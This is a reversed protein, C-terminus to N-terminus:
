TCQRSEAFAEYGKPVCNLIELKIFCFDENFTHRAVTVPYQDVPIFCPELSLNQAHQLDFQEPNTIHRKRRMDDMFGRMASMRASPNMLSLNRALMHQRHIEEHDIGRKETILDKYFSIRSSFFQLGKKGNTIYFRMNLGGWSLCQKSLIDCSASSSSYSTDKIKGILNGLEMEKFFIVDERTQIVFDFVNGTSRTYDEVKKGCLDIKYYMELVSEQMYSYQSIIDLHKETGFFSKWEEQGGNKQPTFVFSKISVNRFDRYLSTINAELQELSMFSYPSPDYKLHPHTAYSLAKSPQLNYFLSFQYDKNATFLPIILRPLFRTTQGTICIAIEVSFDKRMLVFFIVIALQITCRVRIKQWRNLTLKENSIEVLNKGGVAVTDCSIIFHQM